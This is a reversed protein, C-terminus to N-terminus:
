LMVKGVVSHFDVQVLPVQVVQRSKPAFLCDDIGGSALSQGTERERGTALMFTDLSCWDVCQVDVGEGHAQQVNNM